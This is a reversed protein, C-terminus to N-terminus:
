FPPPAAPGSPMEELKRWQPWPDTSSIFSLQLVFPFLLVPPLNLDLSFFKYFIHHASASGALAPPCTPPNAAHVHGGGEIKGPPPPTAAHRVHGGGEIKRFIFLYIFIGKRTFNKELILFFFFGM